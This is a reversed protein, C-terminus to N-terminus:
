FKCFLIRIFKIPALCKLAKRLYKRKRESGESRSSNRFRKGTISNISYRYKILPKVSNHTVIKESFIKKWLDLDQGHGTNSKDYGGVKDYIKRSYTVSPHTIYFNNSKHLFYKVLFMPLWINKGLPKGCETIFATRGCFFDFEDYKDLLIKTREPLWIDDADLRCIYPAKSKRIGYDLASALGHDYEYDVIKINLNANKLIFSEIKERTCDCSLNDIFIIEFNDDLISISKLTDCITTQADRFPIIISYKPFNAM